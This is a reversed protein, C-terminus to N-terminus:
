EVCARARRRVDCAEGGVGVVCEFLSRQARCACALAVREHWEVCYCAQGLQRDLSKIHEELPEIIRLLHGKPPCEQVWRHLASYLARNRFRLFSQKILMQNQRFLAVWTMWGKNLESRLLRRIATKQLHEIM